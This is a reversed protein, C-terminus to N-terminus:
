KRMLSKIEDIINIQFIYRVCAVYVVAGLLVGSLVTVMSHSGYIVRLWVVVGMILASVLAPIIQKFPNFTIISRAKVMVLLSTGALILQTM